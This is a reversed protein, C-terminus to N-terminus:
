QRRIIHSLSAIIKISVGVGAIESNAQLNDSTTNSCSFNSHFPM